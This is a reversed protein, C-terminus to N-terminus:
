VKSLKVLTNKLEKLSEESQDAAQRLMYAAENGQKTAQELAASVLVTIDFELGVISFVLRPGCAATEGPVSIARMNKALKGMLFAM